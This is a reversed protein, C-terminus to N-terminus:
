EIVQDARQLLSPPITLGIAKAAKLNIVLEFETPQEIPLDGPKAGKLIKDVYSASRRYMERRNTSYAMLGGSETFERSPYIAPLRNKAALEVIETQHTFTVPHPLVILGQLRAKTLVGFTRAIDDRARAEVGLVVIGARQAAAKIERVYTPHGPANRAMLVGVRKIGPVTQTLLELSKASLGEGLNSLGTVNGGPHALSSVLGTGVPDVVIIMVIPIAQTARTVAVIATNGVAAIVDLKLSVLEAALAPLREYSSEASRSEIVLNKGEVYGLERLRQRFVELDKVETPYGYGLYGIRWVKGTGQAETVLPTALLGGAVAGIFTRRDV